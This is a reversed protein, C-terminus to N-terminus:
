ISKQKDSVTTQKVHTNAATQRNLWVRVEEASKGSLLMVSAKEMLKWIPLDLVDDSGPIMGRSEFAKEIRRLETGLTLDIRLPSFSFTSLAFNKMNDTRLLYDLLKKAEASREGNEAVAFRTDLNGVLVPAEESIPYPAVEFAFDPKLNKLRQVAWAGTLLFPSKGQAFIELDQSTKKTKVAVAADVWRERVFREGLRLGPLLLDGLKTEGRNVSMLVERDRNKEYYPHLSYGIMLTKLSIDNNAVVPTIGRSVFYRCLTEWGELTEPVTFGHAALMDLNVYLGFASITTPVWRLSGDSERMYRMVAADFGATNKLDSLDALRGSRHLSLASDHNVMFLDDLTGSSSRANLAEFYATGKIAEYTVAIRPNDHMFSDIIREIAGLNDADWKNGFITLFTDPRVRVERPEVGKFLPFLM